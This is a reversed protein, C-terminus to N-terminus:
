CFTHKYIFYQTNQFVRIHHLLQLSKIETFIIWNKHKEKMEFYFLSILFYWIVGLWSKLTMNSMPWALGLPDMCAECKGQLSHKKFCGFNCVVPIVFHRMILATVISESFILCTNYAGFACVAWKTYIQATNLMSIYLSLGLQQWENLCFTILWQDIQLLLEAM